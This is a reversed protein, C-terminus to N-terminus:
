NDDGFMGVLAKAVYPAVAVALDSRPKDLMLTSYLPYITKYRHSIRSVEVAVLAQGESVLVSGYKLSLVLFASEQTLLVAIPEGSQFGSGGIIQFIPGSKAALDYAFRAWQANEGDGVSEGVFQTSEFRRAEMATTDANVDEVRLDGYYLMLLAKKTPIEFWKLNDFLSMRWYASNAMLSMPVFRRLDIVTEIRGLDGIPKPLTTANANLPAWRLRSYLKTNIDSLDASYEARAPQGVAVCTLACAMAILFRLPRRSVSHM